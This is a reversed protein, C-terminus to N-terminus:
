FNYIMNCECKTSNNIYSKNAMHGEKYQGLLCESDSELDNAPEALNLCNIGYTRGDESPAADSKDSKPKAETIGRKKRQPLSM